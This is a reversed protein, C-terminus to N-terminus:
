SYYETLIIIGQYGAGGNQASAQSGAGGGGSGYGVASGGDGGQINKGSGGFYSQGGRGSLSISPSSPSGWGVSGPSGSVNVDGNFGSGGGGGVNFEDGLSGGTAYLHSGFASIRGNLDKLGGAGVIFYESSNLSAAAILKRSYGGAGGGVGPEGDIETSGGGAGGGVLEVTIYKLGVPKSWATAGSKVIYGTGITKNSEVVGSANTVEIYNTGAGTVVFLGNNASNFNQAQFNILSGVPHNALSISPNTGTSDWTYRFTTGSPNTIDFQTTSDGIETSVTTYTRVVPLGTASSHYEQTIFKNAGSPTGFTSGGALAAKQRATPTQYFVPNFYMGVSSHTYQGIVFSYTGASTSVAGATNSLYVLAGATGIHTTNLGRLMVGGTISNGATGSGMAIGIQVGEFTSVDDADTKWWRGDSVKLYVINGVTLTEGALGVAVVRDYSVTGGNVVSDVYAKTALGQPSLPDPAVWYGTITEDNQKSTFTNYFQPNNTIIFTTATGHSRASGGTTYGHTADLGRTVGTLSFTGDGNNTIGTFSIIEQNERSGPELTGYAIDGFDTMTLTNGYIDYFGSLVITTDSSSIGTALKSKLAQVYKIM